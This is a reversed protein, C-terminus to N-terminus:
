KKKRDEQIKKIAIWDDLKLGREEAEEELIARESRMYKQADSNKSTTTTTTSSHHGSGSKVDAKVLNDNEPDELFEKIYV